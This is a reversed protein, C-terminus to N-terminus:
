EDEEIFTMQEFSDWDNCNLCIPTEEYKGGIHLDRINKLTTNWINKITDNNLNGAIYKSDYDCGCQAVNGNWTAVFTKFLWSCPYRDMKRINEIDVAGTWTVYPKIKTCAGINEWYEKFLKKEGDKHINPIEILQVEVKIKSNLKNRIKIFDEINNKVKEFNDNNRMKKYTEEYFADLSFVIKDLGSEILAESLEEDLLIGNTNMFVNKLGKDKAYRILYVMKYKLILPEGYFITWVETEPNENAIEKVLKKFLELGMSGRDRTMASQGCFNCRLNCNNTVELIISNPFADYKKYLEQDVIKYKMFLFVGM